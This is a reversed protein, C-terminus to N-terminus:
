QEEPKYMLQERGEALEEMWYLLWSLTRHLVSDDPPYSIIEVM